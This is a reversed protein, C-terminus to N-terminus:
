CFSFLFLGPVYGFTNAIIAMDLLVSYCTNYVTNHFLKIGDGKFLSFKMILNYESPALRGWDPCMGYQPASTPQVWHM